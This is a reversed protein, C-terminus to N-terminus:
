VIPMSVTVTTGVHQESRVTVQGELKDVAKKVIYLGLGNGKSKESGRFYMEFVRTLLDAPIGAGNDSVAILLREHETFVAVEIFPQAPSAFQIANEVLNTLIIRLLAPYSRYPRDVAIRVNTTIHKAELEEKFQDLVREVESRFIVEQYVTDSAGVTSVSQLKALMKDLNRATDRVKEFLELAVADKVTINAVEALGMFTTLPRRFDHSARYFFTDLESYAEKLQRTREEVAAELNRNISFITENAELLEESQAQIEEKQETVDKNLRILKENADKLEGAQAELEEKKDHIERNLEVLEAAYATKERYYRFLIYAIAILFLVGVVSGILIANQWRIRANQVAIQNQSIQNQANLLEIEREKKDLQYMVNLQAIRDLSQASFLTDSLEVFKELYELARQPQGLQKSLDALLRYGNRIDPRANMELALEVSETLYGSARTFDRQRVATSALAQLTRVVGIKSKREKDVELVKLLYESAKSQDGLDSYVRSINFLTNAALVTLQLRQRIELAQGFHVLASDYEHRVYHIYGLANHAFAQGERDGLAACQEMSQRVSRVALSDQRQRIYVWAVMGHTRAATQLSKIEEDIKLSHFFSEMARAYDGQADYVQGMLQLVIAHYRKFDHTKLVDLAMAYRQMANTYNGLLFDVEGRQMLTFMKLEPDNFRNAIQETLEIYPLAQEYDGLSKHITALARWSEAMLLSDKLKIRIDLSRQTNTLAEPYYSQTIQLQGLNYYASSLTSGEPQGNMSLIARDYYWRASDFRGQVRYLNGLRVHTYAPLDGDTKNGMTKLARWYFQLAKRYDARFYHYMGISTGALAIGRQYKAQVALGYATESLTLARDFSYDWTQAAQQCLLEVKEEPTKAVAVQAALSDIRVNQAHTTEALVMAAFLM